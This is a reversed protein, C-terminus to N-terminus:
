TQLVLQRVEIKALLKTLYLYRKGLKTTSLVKPVLKGELTRKTIFNTVKNFESLALAQLDTLKKLYRRIRWSEMDGYLRITNSFETASTSNKLKTSEVKLEYFLDEFYMLSKKYNEGRTLGLQRGKEIESTIRNDISASLIVFPQNITTTTTTTEKIYESFDLRPKAVAPKNVLRSHSSPSDIVSTNSRTMSVDRTSRNFRSGSEMETTNSRSGGLSNSTRVQRRSNNEIEPLSNFSLTTKVASEKKREVRSTNYTNTM